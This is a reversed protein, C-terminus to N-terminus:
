TDGLRIFTFFTRNDASNGHAVVNSGDGGGALFKVKQNSTDTIDLLTETMMNGFTGYTNHVTAENKAIETFSSNDTTTQIVARVNGDGSPARAKLVYSVLYFGTSPFTFVGSSVTMASGLTGQPATDVQELNSSIVAEGSDITFNSTVRWQDAVTIGGAGSVTGTFAFTDSLDIGTSDVKTKSM